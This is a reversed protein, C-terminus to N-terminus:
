PLHYIIIKKTAFNYDPAFIFIKIRIAYKYLLYLHNYLILIVTM